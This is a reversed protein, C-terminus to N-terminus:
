LRQHRLFVIAGGAKALADRLENSRNTEDVYLLFKSDPFDDEVPVDEFPDRNEKLMFSEASEGRAAYYEGHFLSERGEFSIELLGELLMKADDLSEAEIGYLDYIAM